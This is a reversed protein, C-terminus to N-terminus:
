FGRNDQFAIMLLLLFDLALQPPQYHKGAL